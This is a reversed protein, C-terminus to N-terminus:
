CQGPSLWELAIGLALLLEPVPLSNLQKDSSMFDHFNVKQTRPQDGSSDRTSDEEGHDTSQTSWSSSLILHYHWHFATRNLQVHGGQGVMGMKSGTTAWTAWKDKWPVLHLPVVSPPWKTGDDSATDHNDDSQGDTAADDRPVDSTQGDSAGDEPMDQAHYTQWATRMKDFQLVRVLKRMVLKQDTVPHNNLLALLGSTPRPFQRVIDEVSQSRKPKTTDKSTDKAQLLMQKMCASVEEEMHKLNSSVSLVLRNSPPHHWMALYRTSVQDLYKVM